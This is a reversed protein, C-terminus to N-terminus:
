MLEIHLACHIIHKYSVNQDTFPKTQLLTVDSGSVKQLTVAALHLMLQKPGTMPSYNSLVPLEELMPVGELTNIAVTSTRQPVPRSVNQLFCYDVAEDHTDVLSGHFLEIFFNINHELKLVCIGMFMTQAHEDNSFCCIEPVIALNDIPRYKQARSLSDEVFGVLYAGENQREKKWISCVSPVPLDIVATSSELADVTSQVEQMNSRVAHLTHMSTVDDTLIAGNEATFYYSVAESHALINLLMQKGNPTSLSQVVEVALVLAGKAPQLQGIEALYKECGAATVSVHMKRILLTVKFTVHPNVGQLVNCIRQDAYELVSVSLHINKVADANDQIIRQLAEGLHDVDQQRGTILIYDWNESFTIIVHLHTLNESNFFFVKAAVKEPITLSAESIASQVWHLVDNCISGWMAQGKQIAREISVKVQCQQAPGQRVALGGAQADHVELKVLTQDTDPGNVILLHYPHANTPPGPETPHMAVETVHGHCSRTTHSCFVDGILAPMVARWVGEKTLSVTGSEVFQESLEKVSIILMLNLSTDNGKSSTAISQFIIIMDQASLGYQGIGITRLASLRFGDANVMQLTVAAYDRQMLGFEVSEGQVTFLVSKCKGSLKTCDEDFNCLTLKSDAPRVHGEFVDAPIDRHGSVNLVIVNRLGHQGFDIALLASLIAKQFGAGVRQILHPENLFSKQLYDAQTHEDFPVSGTEPVTAPFDFPSCKLTSSLSYEVLQVLCEEESQRVKELILDVVCHLHGFANLCFAVRVDLTCCETIFGTSAQRCIISAKHAVMETCTEGAALVTVVVDDTSWKLNGVVRKMNKDVAISNMTLPQISQEMLVPEGNIVEGSLPLPLVQVTMQPLKCPMIGANGIILYKRTQEKSHECIYEEQGRKVTFFDSWIFSKIVTVNSRESALQMKWNEMAFTSPAICKKQITQKTQHGAQMHHTNQFVKPVPLDIVAICNELADVFGQVMQINSGIIHLSHVPTVDDTPIIGNEATFYYWGTESHALKRLLMQRGDPMSLLRVAEVPLVLVLEVLKLKEIEVLRKKCDAAKGSIYMKGNPLSVKFVVHPNDRELAQHICQDAYVLVSVPLPIEKVTELNDQLIREVAETLHDVDEQSGTIIVEDQNVSLTFSGNLNALKEIICPYVKAAVKEPIKFSAESITDLVQRLVDNCLSNWEKNYESGATPEICVEAKASDLEAKASLKMDALRDNIVQMLNRKETHM